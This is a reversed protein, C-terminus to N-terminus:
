GLTPSTVHAGELIDEKRGLVMTSASRQSPIDWHEIVRWPLLEKWEQDMMSM